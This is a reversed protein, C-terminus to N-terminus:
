IKETIIENEIKDDSKLGIIFDLVELYFKNTTEMGEPPCVVVNTFRGIRKEILKYKEEIMKYIEPQEEKFSKSFDVIKRNKKYELSLTFCSNMFFGTTIPVTLYKEGFENKKSIHFGRYNVKYHANLYDFLQDQDMLDVDDEKRVSDGTSRDYIDAWISESIYTKFDPIM